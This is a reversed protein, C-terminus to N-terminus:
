NFFAKLASSFSNKKNYDIQPSQVKGCYSEIEDDVEAAHALTDTVHVIHLKKINNSTIRFIASCAIIGVILSKWWPGPIFWICLCIVAIISIFAYGYLRDDSNDTLEEVLSSTQQLYYPFGPNNNLLVDVPYSAQDYNIRCLTDKLAYMSLQPDSLIMIQAGTLVGDSDAAEEFANFIDAGFLENLIDGNIIYYDTRPVSSIQLNQSWAYCEAKLYECLKKIFLSTRYLVLQRLLLNSVRNITENDQASLNYQVKTYSNFLRKVRQLNANAEVFAREIQTQYNVAFQRKAELFKDLMKNHERVAKWAGFAEMSRAGIEAALLLNNSTTEKLNLINIATDVSERVINAYGKYIEPIQKGLIELKPMIEAELKKVNALLREYEQQKVADDNTNM